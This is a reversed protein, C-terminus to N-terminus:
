EQVIEVDRWEGIEPMELTTPVTLMTSQDGSPSLCVVEKTSAKHFTDDPGKGHESWWQQLRYGTTTYVFKKAENCYRGEGLMPVQRLRNTPVMMGEWVSKPGQTGQTMAEVAMQAIIYKEIEGLTVPEIQEAMVAQDCCEGCSASSMCWSDRYAGNTEEARWFRWLAGCVKCHHTPAPQKRWEM